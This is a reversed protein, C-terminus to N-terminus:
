KQDDGTGSDKSFSKIFNYIRTTFPVFDEKYIIITKTHATEYVVENPNEPEKVEKEEKKKPKEDYRGTYKYYAYSGIMTWVGAAYVISVRTNWKAVDKFAM